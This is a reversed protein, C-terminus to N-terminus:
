TSGFMIPSRAGSKPLRPRNRAQPSFYTPWIGMMEMVPEDPAPVVVTLVGELLYELALVNRRGEDFAIGKMAEVPFGHAALYRLLFGSADVERM